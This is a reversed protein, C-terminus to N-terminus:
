RCVLHRLSQLESTHEESRGVALLVFALAVESVVFSQSLSRSRAGASARVGESLVDNPLTRAAQWLPAMSTLACAVFATAIAFGIVPWDMAIQDVRTTVASGFAILM